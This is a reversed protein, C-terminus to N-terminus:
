FHAFISCATTRDLPFTKCLEYRFSFVSPSAPKLPTTPSKPLPPKVVGALVFLLLYSEFSDGRKNQHDILYQWSFACQRWRL